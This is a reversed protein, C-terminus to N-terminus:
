RMISKKNLRGVFCILCRLFLFFNYFMFFLVFDLLNRGTKKYNYIFIIDRYNNRGRPLHKKISLHNFIFM